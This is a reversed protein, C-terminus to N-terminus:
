DSAPPKENGLGEVKPSLRAQIIQNATLRLNPFTPILVRENGRYVAEDYFGERLTLVTVRKDIAKRNKNVDVWDVLVYVPIGIINYEARKQRHDRNETGTSVVEVVLIPPQEDLEVVAERLFMSEWQATPLICIDPCRSTDRRGIQPVRVAIAAQRVTWDAGAQEIANEFQRELFRMIDAHQGRPQSMPVLVGRELEYRTDTGDEYSLWEEFSVTKTAITM